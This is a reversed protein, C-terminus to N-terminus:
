TTNKYHRLYLRPAARARSLEATQSYSSATWAVYLLETEEDFVFLGIEWGNEQGLGKQGNKRLSSHREHLM